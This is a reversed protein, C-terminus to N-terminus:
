FGILQRIKSMDGGQKWASLIMMKRFYNILSKAFQGLEYGDAALKNIHGLASAVDKSILFGAMAIVAGIDTTGLITQAELLPFFESIKAFSLQYKTYYQKM